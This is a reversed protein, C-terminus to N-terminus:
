GHHLGNADGTLSTPARPYKNGAMKRSLLIWYMWRVYTRDSSNHSKKSHVSMQPSSYESDFVLERTFIDFVLRGRFSGISGSHISPVCTSISPVYGGTHLAIGRHEPPTHRCSGPFLFNRLSEIRRYSLQQRQDYTGEM